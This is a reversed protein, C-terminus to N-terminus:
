QLEIGEKTIDIIEEKYLGGIAQKFTNKSMQLRKKIQQPSSDDNLALFGDEAQLENLIKSKADEIRGYGIKRLSVDIKNDERIKKIYGTVQDGIELKKYIDDKYVLGYCQDNIIVKVGLDTYKYILLDVEEGESLDIEEQDIFKDFKETAYIRNSVQDYTVRVVYRNGEKIKSVQESHPLLLDKELGWDLFAGIKNVDIAKLYAFEGVKAVPQKTTAINRDKSDKYVFVELSDGVKVEAPIYKSPLLVEEGDIELYAGIKETRTIKGQNFDGIDM